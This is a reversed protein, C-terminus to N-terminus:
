RDLRVLEVRRNNQRGEPTDNSDVPNSEGLGRVEMRSRDIGYEEVLFDVVAAARAESLTQNHTEDGTSDTHGEVALRMGTHTTLMEGIEKITPTSEPRLTASNSAFLIGRTIARGEAALRDYLPGGGVTVRLAGLYLPNAESGVYVNEIYLDRSRQLNADPLNAVRRENVYVRAYSGEVMIRIPVLGDGVEPSDTLSEVGGRVRTAIGTGQDIGIQVYHGPIAAHNRNGPPPATALIIRHNAHTFYADIEIAFREPLESPLPVRLASNRPGTNRLLRRGQWDVVDWNGRVLQMRRPLSGVVDDGYDEYFLVSEGPVFDYNAWVGEGPRAVQGGRAVQAAAAERDTIPVGDEDVIVDGSEDTFIVAEGAAEAERVCVPDSLACRIAERILRDVQSELEDRAAREAANRLQAAQAAAPPPLIAAASLTLACAALAIPNRM